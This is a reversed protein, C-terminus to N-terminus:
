KIIEVYGVYPLPEAKGSYTKYGYYLMLAFVALKALRGALAILAGILPIWGTLWGVISFAISLAVYIILGILGQNACFRNLASRSDIILPIFFILYGLAAFIHNREYDASDFYRRAM